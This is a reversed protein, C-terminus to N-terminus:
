KLLISKGCKPCPKYKGSHKSHYKLYKGCQPCAMESLHPDAGDIEPQKAKFTLSTQQETLDILRELNKNVKRIEDRTSRTYVNILYLWIPALLAVISFIFIFISGLAGFAEM